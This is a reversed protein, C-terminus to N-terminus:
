EVFKVGVARDLVTVGRSFYEVKEGDPPNSIEFQQVIKPLSLHLELEAVRGGLYM